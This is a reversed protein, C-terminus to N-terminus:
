KGWELEMTRWAYQLADPRIRVTGQYPRDIAAIAVLVLSILFSLVAIQLLEFRFNPVGFFCVALITMAGGAILVAWLIPPLADTTELIRIGRYQTLSSLSSMLEGMALRQSGQVMTAAGSTAWLEDLIRGGGRPPQRKLMQPWEVNLVTEVYERVLMRIKTREPEPFQNAVRFINIVQVAEMEADGSANEHHIWVGSLLFALLVAYLTGIITVVAATFDNSRKRERPASVRRVLWLMLTAAAVSAVIILINIWM